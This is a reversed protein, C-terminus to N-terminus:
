IFIVGMIKPLLGHFGLRESMKRKQHSIIKVWCLVEVVQNERGDHHDVAKCRLRSGKKFRSGKLCSINERKTFCLRQNVSVQPRPKKLKCIEMNDRELTNNTGSKVSFKRAKRVKPIFFLHM